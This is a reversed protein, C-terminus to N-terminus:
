YRNAGEWAMPSSNGRLFSVKFVGFYTMVVENTVMKQVNKAVIELMSKMFPRFEVPCSTGLHWIVQFCRDHLRFQLIELADMEFDFMTVKEVSKWELIM